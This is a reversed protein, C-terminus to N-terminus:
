GGPTNQFLLPLPHPVIAFFLRPPRIVAAFRRAELAGPPRPNTLFRGVPCRMMAVYILDAVVYLLSPAEDQTM